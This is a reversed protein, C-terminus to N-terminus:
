NQKWFFHILDTLQQTKKKLWAMGKKNMVLCVLVDVGNACLICDTVM